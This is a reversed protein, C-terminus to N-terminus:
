NVLSDTEEDWGSISTAEEKSSGKSILRYYISKARDAEGVAMSKETVEIIASNFYAREHKENILAIQINKDKVMDIAEKLISSLMEDEAIAHIVKPDNSNALLSLMLQFRSDNPITAIKLTIIRNLKKLKM